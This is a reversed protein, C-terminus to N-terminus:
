ADWVHATDANYFSYEIGQNGLAQYKALQGNFGILKQETPQRVGFYVHQTESGFIARYIHGDNDAASHGFVFITAANRRLKEYCHRLYADSNIKAMKAASTGEAVYLPLRRDELITKTITAIVGDGTNLAKQVTGAGDQFLHLGGHLNFIHCDAEEQFPGRFRGAATNEGLGFGDRLNARELNLWYLLLDYNLSFVSAFHALFKAGSDLQFALEGKHAPHTDNVAKVLAERARQADAALEEAHEANGYAREVVVADELARVVLEFDVTDLEDFLGRLPTGAELGSKELLTAYNFYQASFGNGILLTRDKGATAEIAEEFSIINPV